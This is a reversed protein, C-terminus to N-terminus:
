VPWRELRWAADWFMWEYRTATAYAQAMRARTDADAAAALRDVIQKAQDVQEAFHPDAYIGIWDGYPHGDLSGAATLLRDGVDQYVWFCPLLGAAAVSYSGATLLSLLYATYGRCTPSMTAATLDQVHTGHLAREVVIAERAGAAWFITDDPDTAQAAVGALTRGYDALYLADQKMYEVFVPRPLSGDGLGVVLPHAYIAARISATDAWVDTSFTM